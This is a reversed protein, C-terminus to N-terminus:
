GMRVIRSAVSQSNFQPVFAGMLQSISTVLSPPDISFGGLGASAAGHVAAAASAAQFPAIGIALFAGIIGSLVDGSGAFALISGGEVVANVRGDPSAILTPTGKLLVTCNTAKAMEVVAAFRDTGDQISIGDNRGLRNFEGIHPTIVTPTEKDAAVRLQNLNSFATIGDADVVTPRNSSAVFRKVMNSTQLSRGLGPGIVCSQFRNLDDLLPPAWVRDIPSTVFQSASSLLGKAETHLVVMGAGAAFASECVLRAAGEMRESGAIVMVSRRWKHDDSSRESFLPTVDSASFLNTGVELGDYLDPLCISLRGCMRIGDNQVHGPKLAGVVVTEDARVAAGLANGSDGQIGSPIDISLVPISGDIVPPVFPRSIGTGLIADIVLDVGTSTDIVIGNAGGYEVCQVRAGGRRLYRAASRGDNGNNGPGVIVSIRRGYLSGGLAKEARSAVAFGVSDIIRDISGSEALRADLKGADSTTVLREM